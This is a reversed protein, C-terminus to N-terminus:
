IKFLKNLCYKSQEFKFIVRDGIHPLNIKNSIEILKKMYISIDNSYKHKGINPYKSLIGQLFLSRAIFKVPKKTVNATKQSTIISSPEIKLFSLLALPSPITSLIKPKINPTGM